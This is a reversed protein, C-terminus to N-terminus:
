VLQNQLSTFRVIIHLGENSEITLTGDLQKALGRMLDVGLSNRGEVDTGKPLGVGDDSIKLLLFGAGDHGLSIRVRGRRGGPFAYKITNVISENIILGLPIAQSVDLELMEIEQEFIIRNGTDFSDRVYDVLENVYGPMVITSINDSQYLKQHILAMAHMRRQSDRIATLAADNDIYASQSNLLSMVIQLNNKVRHHVEKLLWEKDALLGQLQKNKSTIIKNNKQKLRNQRYLLGAIVLVAAIGAFTLNKVLRQQRAQKSLAAIQGEKEHTEYVVQLEDAQRLKTVEFSSDLLLMYKKYHALGSENDGLLSDITLLSKYVELDIWLTRMGISPNIFHSELNERAKQYQGQKIFLEAYQINVASRRFPGRVTEALTELSDMKRIHMEALELKDLGLYCNSLVHHYFFQDTFTTPPMVKKSIDVTFDLAAAARGQRVMQNVLDLLMNYVAPSRDIVFRRVSKQATELSEEKRGEANQLGALTSYFYGWALSDRTNESVKIAQLTYRLPEGFKGQFTTIAALAITVYHTYPYRIDEAQALAKLISQYAAPLQGTVLQVYALDTLINIEGEIEGVSNFLSAAQQMDTLKRELTAPMPQTYIGRYALARAEMGKDRAMRCQVLLQEYLSDGRKENVQIYIKGLLCLAIRGLREQKLSKSETIAKTLFYEASDRYLYYSHPQFAYYSGLLILLQLRKRGTATSLQQIGKGPDEQDIWQTQGPLEKKDLGEGLISIRGLGLSRSAVYLCSDIDAQADNSVNLFTSSLLLNLRQWSEKDNAPHYYSYVPVAGPTAPQTYGFVPAVFALLMGLVFRAM